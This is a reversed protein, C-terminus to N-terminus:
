PLRSGPHAAVVILGAGAWFLNRIKRVVALAVGAVPNVALVPALAGSLVEDIGIRFPVFKFLVTVVRNLAEFVIAQAVTPSRDGLLWGLTAYVELVALAHFVLDLGFVRWLRGPHGASFGMVSTRVSALRERWQPRAGRGPDWTGRLVRYGVVVAVASLALAALLAVRIPAPLPVTAILVLIGVAVM